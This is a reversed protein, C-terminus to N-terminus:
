DVVVVVVVGDITDQLLRLWDVILRLRVALAAVTSLMVSRVSRPPAILM